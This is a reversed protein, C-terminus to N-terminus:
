VVEVSAVARDRDPLPPHVAEPVADVRQGVRTFIQLLTETLLTHTEARTAEGAQWRRSVSENFDIFSRMVFRTAPTEPLLESYTRLMRRACTERAETVLARIEPDSVAHGHATVALWADGEREVYSLWADITAAVRAELPRTSDVVSTSVDRATEVVARVVTLYLERKSGFYHHVLASTVGASSAIDAISVGDYGHVTFLTRACRLIQQRREEPDLRSRKSAKM